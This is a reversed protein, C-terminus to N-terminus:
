NSLEVPLDVRSGWENWSGDYNTLTPYGLMALSFLVTTAAVGGNCYAIIHEDPKVAAGTFIARLEENPRFTGDSAILEERPLSIAGPIHGARGHGRALTGSYQGTDRADILLTGSQNLAALVDQATARLVPQVSATFNAPTYKPVEATLPLGERRWKALGGNLVVVQRHGYYNLAWWLRTAFQSAPHADYAVILHEDGIGLQGLTRALQEASAVQAEVPDALDVIDRTWDIYVAGPIHERAYEDPAGVYTAKQLGPRVTELRVYGRMDVIRVRPDRLHEALWATEVLFDTREM